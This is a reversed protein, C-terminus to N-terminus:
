EGRSDDQTIRSSGNILIPPHRPLPTGSERGQEPRKKRRPVARPRRSPESARGYPAHPVSSLPPPQARSASRGNGYSVNCLLSSLISLISQQKTLTRRERDQDITHFTESSFFSFTQTPTETKGKIEPPRKPQERGASAKAFAPGSIMDDYADQKPHAILLAICLWSFTNHTCKTNM